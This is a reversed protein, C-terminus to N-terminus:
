HRVVHREKGKKRREEKEKMGNKKEEGECRGVARWDDVRVASWDSAEPVVHRVEVERAVGVQADRVRPRGDPAQPEPMGHLRLRPLLSQVGRPRVTRTM